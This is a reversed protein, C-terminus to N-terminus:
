RRNNYKLLKYKFLGFLYGATYFVRALLFLFKSKFFAELGTLLFRVARESFCKRELSYFLKDPHIDINLDPYFSDIYSVGIGNRIQTRVLEMINRPFHHYFWCKPVFMIRYGANRLRLSFESDEGRIMNENFGDLKLFLDRSIAFCAAAATGAETLRDAIPFECHPVERAYRREFGTADEPIRISPIAIGISKDGELAEVMRKLAFENGLRIDEDMFIFIKGKAKRAGANRAKGPPTIEEIKIIEIDSSIKQGSIDKLLGEINDDKKRCPIVISVSNKNEV